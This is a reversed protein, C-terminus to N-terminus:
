KCSYHSVHHTRISLLWSFDLIKAVNFDLIEPEVWESQLGPLFESQSLFKIPSGM